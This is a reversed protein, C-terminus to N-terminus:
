VCLGIELNKKWEFLEKEPGLLRLGCVQGNEGMIWETEEISHEYWINRVKLSVTVKPSAGIPLAISQSFSFRDREIKVVELDRVDSTSEWHYMFKCHPLLKAFDM